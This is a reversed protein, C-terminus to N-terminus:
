NNNNTGSITITEGDEFVSLNTTSTSITNGGSFTLDSVSGTDAFDTTSSADITISAGGGAGPATSINTVTLRRDDSLIIDDGEAMFAEVGQATPLGSVTGTSAFPQIVVDYGSSVAAFNNTGATDASCFSVSLSNGLAGVYKADWTTSSAKAPTSDLIVSAGPAELTTTETVNILNTAADVVTFTTNNASEGAGSVRIKDGANFSSLDTTGSTITTGSFNIDTATITTGANARVVYLANSYSLFNAASFFTEHNTWPASYSGKFYSSPEGFYQVLEKESSVLIRENVPGWRFVGAIAGVSSSVAPVVATLDVESVNIGPSVQFAM